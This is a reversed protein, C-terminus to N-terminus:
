RRLGYFIHFPKDRTDKWWKSKRQWFMFLWADMESPKLVYLVKSAETEKHSPFWDIQEPPFGQRGIFVEWGFKVRLHGMM